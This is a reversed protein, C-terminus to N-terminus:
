NKGIGFGFGLGLGLGFSDSNVLKYTLVQNKRRERLVYLYIIKCGFM